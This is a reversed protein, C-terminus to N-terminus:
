KLEFTLPGLWTELCKRMLVRVADTGKDLSPPKANEYCLDGKGAECEMGSRGM